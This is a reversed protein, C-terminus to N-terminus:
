PRATMDGAEEPADKAKWYPEYAFPLDWMPLGDTASRFRRKNSIGGEAEFEAIIDRTVETDHVYLDSEHNFTEIGAEKFRTYLSKRAASTEM